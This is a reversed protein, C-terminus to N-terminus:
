DINDNVSWEVWSSDTEYLRVSYLEASDCGLSNRLISVIDMLINESTPQREILHVNGWNSLLDQYIKESKQTKRLLLSHDYYDLVKEQVIKKLLKFDMVMGDDASQVGRVTVFLKYAHGHIHRCAGDYGELAHAMHFEFQKTIRIRNGM